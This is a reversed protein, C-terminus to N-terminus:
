SVAEELLEPFSTLQLITTLRVVIRTLQKGRKTSMVQANNPFPKGPSM